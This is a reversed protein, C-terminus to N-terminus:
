KSLTYHQSVGRSDICTLADRSIILTYPLGYLSVYYNTQSGSNEMKSVPMKIKRSKASTYYYFERDPNGSIAIEEIYETTNMGEFNSSEWIRDLTLFETESNGSEKKFDVLWKGDKKVLDIKGDTGDKKYTCNSKEGETKCTMGEIKAEETPKADSDLSKVQNIVIASEDTALKKADAYEKMHMHKLFEEAVVEPSIENKWINQYLFYMGIAIIITSCVFIAIFIVKKRSSKRKSNISTNVVPAVVISLKEKVEVAYKTVQEQNVEGFQNETVSIFDKLEVYTWNGKKEKVFCEILGSNIANKTNLSIDVTPKGNPPKTYQPTNFFLEKLFLQVSQYRDEPEMEMAKIIASNVQDPVKSNLSKAEPLPKRKRALSEVPVKGTLCTYLTAGISYIDTYPGKDLEAIYQEEPAYGPTIIAQTSRTHTGFYDKATGFDILIARDDPTIMINAPKIDRHIIGKEHISNVADCLQGIYNMALEYGLIKKKHIVSELTQGEIYDMVYYATNNEEFVSKVHVINPHRGFQAITRAEAIFRDKFGSFDKQSISHINVSTFGTQRICSTSLFFEKIAVKCQLGTDTALYTIGFGGQSLKEEIVYVGNQLKTGSQLEQKLEM